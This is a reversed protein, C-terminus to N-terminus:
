FCSFTFYREDKEAMNDESFVAKSLALCDKTKLLLRNRLRWGTSNRDSKEYHNFHKHNFINIATKKPKGPLRV